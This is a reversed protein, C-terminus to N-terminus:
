EAPEIIFKEFVGDVGSNLEAVIRAAVSFKLTSGYQKDSHWNQGYQRRSGTGTVGWPIRYERYLTKQGRSSVFKRVIYYTTM